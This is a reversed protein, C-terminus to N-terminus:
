WGVTLCSWAGRLRRTVRTPRNGRMSPVKMALPGPKAGRRMLRTTATCSSPGRRRLITFVYFPLMYIETDWFVHGRYAEGTLGRAGISIHENAPNVAAILHYTAFRLARQAEEDGVIRVEAGEWKCRWANVHAQAVAPFGVARTTALRDSAAKGPSVVDRSTFVTVIRDLRTTEGLSAEWSWREEGGQPGGEHSATRSGAPGRLESASLSRLYSGHPCQTQAPSSRDRCKSRRGSKLRHLGCQSAPTTPKKIAKASIPCRSRRVDIPKGRYSFATSPAIVFSGPIRSLDTTLDETLGEAFYEQASDRATNSFPLVVMSLPPPNAQIIPEQVSAALTGPLASQTGAVQASPPALHPWVM